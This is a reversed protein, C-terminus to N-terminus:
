NKAKKDKRKKTWTKKPEEKQTEIQRVTLVNDDIFIHGNMINRIMIERMKTWSKDSNRVTYNFGSDYSQLETDYFRM